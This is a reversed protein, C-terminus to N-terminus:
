RTRTIHARSFRPGVHSSFAAWALYSADLLPECHTKQPMVGTDLPPFFTAGSFTQTGPGSAGNACRRGPYEKDTQVGASGSEAEGPLLLQVRAFPSVCRLPSPRSTLVDRNPLNSTLISLPVCTADRPGVHRLAVGSTHIPAVAYEKMASRQQPHHRISTQATGYDDQEKTKVSAEEHIDTSTNM